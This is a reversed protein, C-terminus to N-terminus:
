LIRLRGFHPGYTVMPKISAPLVRMGDMSLINAIPESKLSLLKAQKEESIAGMIPPLQLQGESMPDALEVNLHLSENAESNAEEKKM